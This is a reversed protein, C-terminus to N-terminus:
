TSRQLNHDRAQEYRMPWGGPATCMPQPGGTAAHSIQQRNPARIQHEFQVLLLRFMFTPVVETPAPLTRLSLSHHLTNQCAAM